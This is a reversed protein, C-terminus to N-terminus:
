SRKPPCVEVSGTSPRLEASGTPPRLEASVKASGARSALWPGTLRSAVVQPAPGSRAWRRAVIRRGVVVQSTIQAHWGIGLRAVSGIPAFGSPSGDHGSQTSD